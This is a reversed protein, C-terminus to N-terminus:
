AFPVPLTMSDLRSLVKPVDDVQVTGMLWGPVLGPGYYSIDERGEQRGPLPIPRRPPAGPPQCGNPQTNEARLSVM